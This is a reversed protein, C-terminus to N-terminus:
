HFVFTAFYSSVSHTGLTLTTPLACTVNKTGSNYTATTVESATSLGTADWACVLSAFQAGAILFDGSLTVTPGSAVDDIHTSPPYVATVVLFLM